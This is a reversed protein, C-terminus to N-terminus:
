RLRGRGLRSFGCSLPRKLCPPSLLASRSAVIEQGQRGELTGGTMTEPDQPLSDSAPIGSHPILFQWLVIELDGVPWYVSRSTSVSHVEMFLWLSVMERKNTQWLVHVTYGLMHWVAQWTGLSVCLGNLLSGLGCSLALARELRFAPSSGSDM